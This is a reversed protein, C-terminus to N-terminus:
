LPMALCTVSFITCHLMAKLLLFVSFIFSRFLTDFDRQLTFDEYANESCLFITQFFYSCHFLLDPFKKNTSSFQKLKPVPFGFNLVVSQKFNTTIVVFHPGKQGVKASVKQLNWGSMCMRISVHNVDRLRHHRSFVVM